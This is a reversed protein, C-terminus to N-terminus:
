RRFKKQCEDPEMIRKDLFTFDKINYTILIRPPMYAHAAIMYDRANDKFDGMKVGIEAAYRGYNPTFWDIEINLKRLLADFQGISKGRSLLHVCHETYAIVPLIKRGWYSGLWHLFAGDSIACTDLVL